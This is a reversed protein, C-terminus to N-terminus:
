RWFQWPFLAWLTGISSGLIAAGVYLIILKLPTPEKFIGM